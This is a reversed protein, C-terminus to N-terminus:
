AQSHFGNALERENQRADKEKAFQESAHTCGRSLRLFGIVRMLGDGIVQFLKLGFCRLTEGHQPLRWEGTGAIKERPERAGDGGPCHCPRRSSQALLIERVIRLLDHVDPKERIVGAIALMGFLEKAVSGVRGKAIVRVLMTCQNHVNGGARACEHM